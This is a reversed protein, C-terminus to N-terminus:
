LRYQGAISQGTVNVFISFTLLHHALKGIQEVPESNIAYAVSGKHVDLGVYLTNNNNM